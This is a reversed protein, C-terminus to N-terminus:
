DLYIRLAVAKLTRYTPLKAAKGSYREVRREKFKENNELLQLTSGSAAVLVSDNANMDMKRKSKWDGPQVLGSKKM